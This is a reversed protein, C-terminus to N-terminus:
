LTALSLSVGNVTCASPTLSTITASAATVSCATVTFPPTPPTDPVPPCTATTFPFTFCEVDSIVVWDYVKDVRICEEAVDNPLLQIPCNVPTSQTTSVPIGNVTTSATVTVAGITGPAATMTATFNGSADTTAPNPTISVSGTGAVSSIVSVTAGPVPTGSCTVTGRIDFTCPDLRTINLTINPICPIAPGIKTVFADNPGALAGQFPNQTPFDTSDTLGTVYASGTSDVAIGLGEDSGSGGLYTSYVLTNGSPSFMTVYADAVGALAGQFPNQTPFNPSDTQGTVYASGSSDVAIGFGEDFGSGGLYTSYVLTNGGPSFKTVFTDEPGALAGQFPNQTPFDPSDTFGTVYASGSSDIAIGRGEDVGSGGLYTSYLLTNGAPSFKTVFADEVGALAGQFPNQTPFDPSETVGTVYASGMSDVAIGFGEDNGSGGLYTSYVLANGAPNFKTVFADFGGALAGQFPNQTPFNPSITFGTVYASGSSDVAIGNGADGGSGGLYTSYVLANGAPSFKTVFANFVGVLAGQFPNQTPFDPSTTLGTVYAAGSSDVAIGLGQDIGSGGLYTSYVLTPDIILPYCPDFDHGVQFGYEWEGDQDKQLLFSSTVPVQQGEIEQM